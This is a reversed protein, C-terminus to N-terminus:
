TLVNDSGIERVTLCCMCTETVCIDSKHSHLAYSHHFLLNERTLGLNTCYKLNEANMFCMLM